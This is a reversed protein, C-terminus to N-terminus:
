QEEQQQIHMCQWWLSYMTLRQCGLLRAQAGLIAKCGVHACGQTQETSNQLSNQLLSVAVASCAALM